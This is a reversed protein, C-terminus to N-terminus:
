NTYYTFYKKDYTMHYMFRNFTKQHKNNSTDNHKLIDIKIMEHDLDEYGWYDRHGRSNRLRNKSGYFGIETPFDKTQIIPSLIDAWFHLAFFHEYVNIYKEKAFDNGYQLNVSSHLLHETEKGFYKAETLGGSSIAVVKRINHDSILSYFNDTTIHVNGLTKLYDVIAIDNSVKPHRKYLINDFGQISRKFEDKHNLISYIEGNDPNILSRDFMTQGLFLVTPVQQMKKFDRMLYFTKLYDAQLYISEEPLKYKLIKKYVDPINSTIAFLQDELFRIPSLYMDIYPIHLKDLIELICADMEYSIVLSDKFISEVYEYAEKNYEKKYFLEGWTQQTYNLGYFESFKMYDFPIHNTELKLSVFSPPLLIEIPLNATFEVYKYFLSPFWNPRYYIYERLPHSALIIKKIKHEM